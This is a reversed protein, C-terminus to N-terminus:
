RLRAPSVADVTVGLALEDAIVGDGRILRALLAAMAPATKIGAGGQGVLWWFGPADPDEGVVPARDPAFTRLGAWARVISRLDLGSASSVRDIAVAVDVEDPRADCPESHQEDAPSVLLGGQEPECYYRGRIDMVLPWRSVDVPTRAIAATRRLALLGLPAVGARAAVADGWAGAADVVDRCEVHLDGATVRWRRAERDHPDAADVREVVIAESSTHVSGGGRRLMRVFGQLVAAADITSADPEHVAGAATVTPSFTPLLAATERADVRRVTPAVRQGNVAMEDLASEDGPEGVWVLGRPGLLPHDAFGEPPHEFLDRSLRAFACVLPHGSTESLTAASRGSAHYATTTEQEVVIVTRDAALASAAGLGAIGAGVVVVDAHTTM